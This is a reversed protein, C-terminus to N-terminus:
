IKGAAHNQVAWFSLIINLSLHEYDTQHYSASVKFRLAYHERAVLSNKGRMLLGM